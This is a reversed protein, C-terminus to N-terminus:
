VHARGIQTADRRHYRESPCRESGPSARTPRRALLTYRHSLTTLSPPFLSSLLGCGTPDTTMFLALMCHFGIPDDTFNFLVPTSVLHPRVSACAVCDSLGLFRVTAARVCSLRHRHGRGVSSSELTPKGWGRCPNATINKLTLPGQRQGKLPLREGATRGNWRALTSGSLSQDCLLEPEGGDDVIREGVRCM